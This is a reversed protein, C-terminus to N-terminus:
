TFNSRVSVTQTGKHDSTLKHNIPKPAILPDVTETEIETKSTLKSEVLPEERELKGECTLQCELVSTDPNM